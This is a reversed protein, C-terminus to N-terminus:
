IVMVKTIRRITPEGAIDEIVLCVQTTIKVGFTSAYCTAVKAPADLYFGEGPGLEKMLHCVKYNKSLKTM